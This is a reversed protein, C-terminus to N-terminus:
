ICWFYNIKSILKTNRSMKIISCHYNAYYTKRYTVRRNCYWNCTCLLCYCLDFAFTVGSPVKSCSILVILLWALSCNTLARTHKWRCLSTLWLFLSSFALITLDQKCFLMTFEHSLDCKGKLLMTLVSTLLIFLISCWSESNFSRIHLCKLTIIFM